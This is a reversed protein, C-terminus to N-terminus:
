VKWSTTTKKVYLWGVKGLVLDNTWPDEVKVEFGKISRLIKPIKQAGHHYEIQMRCFHSLYDKNEETFIKHEVGELDCKLIYNYKGSFQIKDFVDLADGRYFARSQVGAKTINEIGLKIANKDIEFLHARKINLNQLLYIASDGVQAGLDVLVIPKNIPLNNLLWFYQNEMFTEVMSDYYYKYTINQKVFKKVELNLIKM